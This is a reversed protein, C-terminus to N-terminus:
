SIMGGDVVVTQGQIFSAADSLLFLVTQAVEEARGFRGMPIYELYKKRLAPTLSSLMETEIFGPIVCNVRIGCGALELALTRSLAIVGAKAAAYNAQGPRGTTASTSSINVISGAGSRMMSRAALRCTLFTATLNTQIVADWDPLTMMAALGDRAIAANNVLLDIGARRRRARDFVVEVASPDSIDAMIVEGDGGAERIAGLVSDAGMADRRANLFVFAGQEALALAVAAGIGRSAGTVLANRGAFQGARGTM